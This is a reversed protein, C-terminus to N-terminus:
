HYPIVIHWEIGDPRYSTRHYLVAYHKGVEVVNTIRRDQRSPIRFEVETNTADYRMKYIIRSPNIKLVTLTTAVFGEHSEAYAKLDNFSSTPRNNNGKFYVEKKNVVTTVFSDINQLSEIPKRPM